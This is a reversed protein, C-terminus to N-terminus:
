GRRAATPASGPYACKTSPSAPASSARQERGQTSPPTAQRSAIVQPLDRDPRQEYANRRLGAPALKWSLKAATVDIM